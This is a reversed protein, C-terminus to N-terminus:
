SNDEKKEEPLIPKYVGVSGRLVVYYGELDTSYEYIKTDAEIDIIAIKRACEQLDKLKM